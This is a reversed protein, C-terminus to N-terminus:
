TRLDVRSRGGLLQGWWDGKLRAVQTLLPNQWCEGRGETETGEQWRHARFSKEM